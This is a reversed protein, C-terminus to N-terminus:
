KNKKEFLKMLIYLGLLALATYYANVIPDKPMEATDSIGSQTAFGESCVGGTMPNRGGIFWCPSMSSIDTKTLYGTKTSHRNYVDITPMQQAQCDPETGTMFAQFIKMPNIDTLNGMAGPILGKFSSFGTGGMGSSIFPITGDPVNNIYLSRTVKEGTEADKCKAGTELFFKDGLGGAVKSPSGGGTVLVDMYGILGGVNNKIASWSGESSMAKGDPLEGPAYIQKYYAYDPGLLENELDQVNGLAQQFFNAM